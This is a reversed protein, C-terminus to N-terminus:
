KVATVKWGGYLPGQESEAVPRALTVVLSVQATSGDPRHLTAEVTVDKLVAQGEAREGTVREVRVRSVTGRGRPEFITTSLQSLATLDRLRSAAFFDSIIVQEAPVSCAVTGAVLVAAALRPRM